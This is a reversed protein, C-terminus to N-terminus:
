WSRADREPDGGVVDELEVLCGTLEAHLLSASVDCDLDEVEVLQDRFPDVLM